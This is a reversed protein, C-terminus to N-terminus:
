LVGRKDSFVAKKEGEAKKGMNQKIEAKKV